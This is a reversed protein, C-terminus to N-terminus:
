AERQTYVKDQEKKVEEATKKPEEKAAAAKKVPQASKAKRAARAKKLEKRLNLEGAVTKIADDINKHNLVTLNKKKCEGLIAVRMRGGVKGLVVAHKKGDLPAIESTTYVTMRVLGENSLGRVAAPGRYGPNVTAPKGWVGKRMKNHLGRPRRWRTGVEKRKQWDFHRFKPRKASIKKRLALLAKTMKNYVWCKM